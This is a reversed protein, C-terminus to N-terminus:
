PVGQERAPRPKPTSLGVPQPEKCELGVTGVLKAWAGAWGLATLVPSPDPRGGPRRVRQEGRHGLWFGHIVRSGVSGPQWLKIWKRTRDIEGDLVGGERWEWWRCM